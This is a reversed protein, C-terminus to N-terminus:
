AAKPIAIDVPIVREELTELRPQIAQRNGVVLTIMNEPKLTQQAADLVKQATMTKVSQQYRMLFDKPYGFYEYRMLRSLTQSPDVFNFVFSNLISEKAFALEKSSLPQRRVKELEARVSQIFPVTTESRTQGGALFLGPYDFRPSWVAYVSYALGQRSRVEDFLIGGFSNLAENLVYLAFVDPDSLKGGLQGIMVSSQTLQPQDVIYVNGQNKQTAAPPATIAPSNVVWDGLRAEIIQRIQAPNFDGVIGLIMRRPDFYRQYFSQLDARNIRNLTQYEETRAYPSESGYILKKFERNSISDPSDNRREITGKRQQKSLELKDQPIAPERLVEAFLGFVDELDESLASFSASAAADDVGVEIAAARQELRENLQDAPHQLTGGSRMVETALDALGVQTPPDLREGTRILVNGSVLPLEHDEMLYVVLGNNLTFRSYAPFQVEPLPPFTLETYHKPTAATAPITVAFSV